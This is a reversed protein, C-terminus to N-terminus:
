ISHYAAIHDDIADDIAQQIRDIRQNNAFIAKGQANITIAGGAPDYAIYAAGVQSGWRIGSNWTTPSLVLWEGIIADTEVDIDSDSRIRAARLEVTATVIGATLKQFLLGNKIVPSPIQFINHEYSIATDMESARLFIADILKVPDISGAMQMRQVIREIEPWLEEPGIASKVCLAGQNAQIIPKFDDEIDFRILRPKVTNDAIIVSLVFDRLWPSAKLKEDVNSMFLAYEKLCLRSIRELDVSSLRKKGGFQQILKMKLPDTAATVGGCFVLIRDSLPFIKCAGDAFDSNSGDPNLQTTRKDSALFAYNGAIFGVAMTM